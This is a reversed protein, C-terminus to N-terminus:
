KLGLEKSMRYYNPPALGLKKAAEADSTSNDRVFKFYKARFIKELDRLPELKSLSNFNFLAGQDKKNLASMNLAVQLSNKDILDSDAFLLRQVVNKLERVNGPWNYGRLQDIAEDSLKPQRIGMEKSFMGLFHHALEIVDDKRESIKKIQIPVVSLRYFLDERFKGQNVLEALNKNTASIIRVDVKIRDVRGIKEIEGEQIVRLLKVQAAPPLESVEDLFITGKDALEFLGPKKSVAGTFAGKEYGFLESEILDYPLSGCNIPVFRELKRKSL